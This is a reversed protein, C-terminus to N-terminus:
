WQKLELVFIPPAPKTMQRKLSLSLPKVFSQTKSQRQPTHSKLFASDACQVRLFRVGKQM